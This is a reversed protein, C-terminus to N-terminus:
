DSDFQNNISIATIVAIGAIVGGTILLAKGVNFGAAEDDKLYVLRGQLDKRLIPLAALQVKELGRDSFNIDIIQGTFSKQKFADYGGRSLLNYQPGARFGLKYKAPTTSQKGFPLSFYVGAYLATEQRESSFSQGHAKPAIIFLLLFIGSLILRFM